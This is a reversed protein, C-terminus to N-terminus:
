DIGIYHKISWVCPKFPQPQALKWRGAFFGFAFGAAFLALGIIIALTATM